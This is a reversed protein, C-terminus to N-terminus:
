AGGLYLIQGTIADSSDSLFFDIVNTVDNFTSKKGGVLRNALEDIIEKPVGAILDTDIPGPGISNCTIGYPALERAIVRTFQEIAAKSASYISEGEIKLPVAVSTVTVIRGHESRRLLRIAERSVIMTGVLNTELMNMASSKPSFVLPNMSAMGANCIVADLRGYRYQIFKFLSQVSHEDTVDAIQYDVGSDPDEPVTRACGVVAYGSLSLSNAIRKGLGKSAGSVLAVPLSHM